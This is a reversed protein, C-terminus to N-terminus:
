KLKKYMLLKTNSPLLNKIEECDSNYEKFVKFNLLKFNQISPLNNSFIPCYVETVDPHKAIQAQCLKVLLLAGQHEPVVYAPGFYLSGNVHEISLDAFIHNLGQAKKLSDKPLYFGLLNGKVTTSALGNKGEVWANLAAVPNGNYEAVMFGELALDCDEVEEELMEILLDRTKSESLGFLTTYSLLSTGSKEAEIIGEVLFGIDKLTAPRIIYNAM